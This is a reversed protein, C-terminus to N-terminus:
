KDQKLIEIAQRMQYDYKIMDLGGFNNLFEDKEMQYKKALKEAEQEATEDDIEIKEAKAIEELMLRFKVRNVAEPQMQDKLATEDSNTFQYFQQLTIGQMKLNEEYQSLMRKLEEEIMVEPIEVEMNAAAEELLGDIYENEANTEKQVEINEKIQQELKELTDVGELGLDKFFEEDVEPIQVEKVENIKVKFVVPQGKLEESHYNEPFTINIEKEDGAKLGILQEEFGPIFTGSGIKLSYNEDKGGEFAVGDKFGEFDIVAIDGEEISGDKLVNEAYHSRMHEIADNIEEKTVEVKAKKTKLGKYKGLKVEPRLTLTFKFEIGKDDIQNLDIGPEAVIVEDGLQKLMESYASQLCLDAADAYLAEKGYKKLFVDKPVKGKRFGDVKVKSSAKNFAKDLADEWEKGEIKINIEKIGKKKEM